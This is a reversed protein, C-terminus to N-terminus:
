RGPFYVQKIGVIQRELQNVQDTSNGTDIGAQNALAIRRKAEALKALANNFDTLREPPMVGQGMTNDQAM